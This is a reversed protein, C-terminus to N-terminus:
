TLLQSSMSLSLIFLRTYVHRPRSPVNRCAHKLRCPRSSCGIIYLIHRAVTSSDLIHDLPWDRLNYVWQWKKHYCVMTLTSLHNLSVIFLKIFWLRYLTFQKCLRTYVTCTYLRNRLVKKIVFVKQTRGDNCALILYLSLSINCSKSSIVLIQQNPFYPSFWAALSWFSNLRLASDSKFDRFTM